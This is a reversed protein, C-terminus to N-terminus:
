VSSLAALGVRAVRKVLERPANLAVLALGRDRALDIIPQYLAFDYGWRDRWGTRSLLTPADIARAAYDDLVGQFPRQVMELGLAMRRGRGRSSLQDVITLQAWHHHPDPHTEGVCVARAQGLREWFAPTAVARGTRADIIAFPLAAAAVSRADGPARAPRHAGGCAAVVVAVVCPLLRPRRM